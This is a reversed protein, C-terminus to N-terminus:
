PRRFAPARRHTVDNDAPSAAPDPKRDRSPEGCIVVDDGDGTAFVRIQAFGHGFPVPVPNMETREVQALDARDL